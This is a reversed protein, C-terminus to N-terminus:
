KKLGIQAHLFGHQQYEMLKCLLKATYFADFDATHLLADNTKIGFKHCMDKLSRRCKNERLLKACEFAVNIHANSFPYDQGFFQCQERFRHGDDGYSAWQRHRPAYNSKIRNLADAFPIGQDDLIKQTISTLNECRASVRGYKPRIYMSNRDLVSMNKIDLRSIGIQIIEPFSTNCDGKDWCLCELDVVLIQDLKIIDSAM